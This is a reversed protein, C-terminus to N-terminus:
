MQPRGCIYPRGSGPGTAWRPHGWVTPWTTGHENHLTILDTALGHEFVQQASEIKRQRQEPNLACIVAFDQHAVLQRWKHMLRKAHARGGSHPAEVEVYCHLGTQPEFLALDPRYASDLGTPCILTRYGRQRMYHATLVVMATHVPQQPGNHVLRLRDWECVVRAPVGMERLFRYGVDSLWVLAVQIKPRYSVQVTQQEVLGREEMRAWLRYISGSRTSSLKPDDEVLWHNLSLRSSWGTTALLTLARLDGPFSKGAYRWHLAYEAPPRDRIPGPLQIRNTTSGTGQLCDPRALPCDAQLAEAHADTPTQTQHHPRNSKPM